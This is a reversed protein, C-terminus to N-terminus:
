MATFGGDVPLLTGTVYRSEDSALYLAGYAIERPEGVRGLCTRSVQSQHAPSGPRPSIRTRISGPCLANVRINYQGYDHAVSRTFGLRGAKITMYAVSKPGGVMGMVSSVIIISGQEQRVMWPLSERVFHNTGMLSVRIDQDWEEPTAELVTHFQELYAANSCLVDVRGAHESAQKVARVAEDPLAVDTRCFEAQGGAEAIGRVTAEGAEEDIDAILVWAGAEAFVQSIAQGIGHSGGTVIATKGTLNFM